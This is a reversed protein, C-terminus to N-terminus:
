NTIVGGPKLDGIYMGCANGLEETPFPVNNYVNTDNYKENRPLRSRLLNWERWDYKRQVYRPDDDNKRARNHTFHKNNWKKEFRAIDRRLHFDEWLKEDIHDNSNQGIYNFKTILEPFPKNYKDRNYSYQAHILPCYDSISTDLLGIEYKDNSLVDNMIPYAEASLQNFHPFPDIPNDDSARAINLKVSLADPAVVTFVLIMIGIFILSQQLFKYQSKKLLINLTLLTLLVIMVMFFWFGFLRAPTFGYERVYLNLRIWASIIILITESLLIIEIIPVIKNKPREAHALRLTLILGLVLISIATLENFGQVAYESYTIANINDWAAQGGFLYVSQFIIFGLFLLSSGILVIVSETNLRSTLESLLKPEFRKWFAAAFFLLLILSLISITFIHAIIDNVGFYDKMWNTLGSAYEQLILDSGLFLASFVILIPITILIGRLVASSNSFDPTKFNRLISIRKVVIKFTYKIGDIAINLPHHFKGKHGLVSLAFFFNSFILGLVNLASSTESTWVAFTTAFLLAFTAAIWGHFPILNKTDKALFATVSIIVIQMLLVNIGAANTEYFLIEFVIGITAAGILLKWPLNKM